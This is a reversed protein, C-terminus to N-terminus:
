AGPERDLPEGEYPTGDPWFYRTDPDTKRVYREFFELASVLAMYSDLGSMPGVSGYSGAIEMPCAAREGDEKWYPQGIRISIARRKPKGKRAMLLTREAVVKWNGPISRPDRKFRRPPLFDFDGGYPQGDPWFFYRGTQPGEFRENIHLVAMSLAEFPDRGEHHNVSEIHKGKMAVPCAALEGEIMWYPHGIQLMVESREQSGERQHLIKREVMVSWDKRHLANIRRVEADIRDYDGPEGEFPQRDHPPDDFYFFRIGQPPTRCRQRLTRVANILAEFFDRGRAPLLDDYLGAIAIPCISQNGGKTWQPFGIQLAVDQLGAIGDREMRLRREALVQGEDM